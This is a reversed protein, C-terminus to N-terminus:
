IRKKNKEEEWRKGILYGEYWGVKNIIFDAMDEAIKYYGNGGEYEYIAPNEGEDLYFFNFFGNQKFVSFVFLNDTFVLDSKIESDQECVEFYSEAYTRMQEFEPFRYDNVGMINFAWQCGLILYLERYSLPLTIGLQAELGNLKSKPCPPFNGMGSDQKYEILFGMYKYHGKPYTEKIKSPRRKSQSM